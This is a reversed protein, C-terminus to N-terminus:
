SMKGPATSKWSVIIPGGGEPIGRTVQEALGARAIVDLIVSTQAATKHGRFVKRRMDTLTLGADGAAVIARLLKEADPDGLSDGFIYAASRECYRWFALAAELHVREVTTSRDLLAYICALRMTQAEARSTLAGFLGPKASSLDEYVSEWLEDAELDREIPDDYVCLRSNETAHRLDRVVETFVVDQIRGGHPLFRSRKACLWLFRNGFGNREDSRTLRLRLEDDTVHGILSSHAGTARLPSNKTASRLDGWDWAKRVNGSLSNGDRSMVSLTSGFESEVWLARKDREGPDIEVEEYTGKFPGSKQKVRLVIPDRVNWIFGEGSAMGSLIRNDVWSPDCAHM